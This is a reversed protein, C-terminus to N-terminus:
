HYCAKKATQYEALMEGREAHVKDLEAQAEEIAQKNEDTKNLRYANNAESLQHRAELEANAYKSILPAYKTGVKNREAKNLKKQSIDSTSETATETSSKKDKSKEKHKPPKTSSQSSINVLNDLYNMSDNNINLFISQLLDQQSLNNVSENSNTELINKLNNIINIMLNSNTITTM